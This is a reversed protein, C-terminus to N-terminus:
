SPTRRIALIADILETPPSGLDPESFADKEMEVVRRYSDVYHRCAICMSLHREFAASRMPDLEGAHFDDLFEYVERCTPLTSM